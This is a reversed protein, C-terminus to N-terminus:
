LVHYSSHLIEGFWLKGLTKVIMNEQVVADLREIQVSCLLLVLLILLTMM